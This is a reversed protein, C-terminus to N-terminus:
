PMVVASLLPTLCARNRRAEEHPSLWHGLMTSIPVCPMQKDRKPSFSCGGGLVEMHIVACPPGTKQDSSGACFMSCQGKTEGHSLPARPIDPM